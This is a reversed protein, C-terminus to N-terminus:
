TIYYTPILFNIREIKPFIGTMRTTNNPNAIVMLSIRFSNYLMTINFTFNDHM